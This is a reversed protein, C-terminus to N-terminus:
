PLFISMCGTIVEVSIGVVWGITQLGHLRTAVRQPRAFPKSIQSVHNQLVMSRLLGHDTLSIRFFVINKRHSIEIRVM